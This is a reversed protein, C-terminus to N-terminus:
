LVVPGREVEALLRERAEALWAEVDDKSRLTASRLRVPRVPPAEPEAERAADTMAGRFRTPLAATRDRWTTLSMEDLSRLIADPTAVDADPM